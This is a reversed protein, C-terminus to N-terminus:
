WNKEKFPETRRSSSCLFIHVCYRTRLGLQTQAFLDKGLSVLSSKSTMLALMANGQVQFRRTLIRKKRRYDCFWSDIEVKFKNRDQMEKDSFTETKQLDCFVSNNKAAFRRTLVHRLSEITFWLICFRNRSSIEDDCCKEKMKSDCFLLLLGLTTKRDWLAKLM